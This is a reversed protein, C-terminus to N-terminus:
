ASVATGEVALPLTVTATTGRGPSSALTIEGGHGRALVRAIPLGLGSGDARHLVANAARHSRNFVRPLEEAAIGIGADHIRIEVRPADGEMRVADLRVAQGPRSYRVANDLVALLLQRLRDADGIVPLAAPWPEHDLSVGGARAIAEGSSILDDLITVLDFPVRRLSLADIDSRAMTLLDDIALSLHRSADEIRRLSAQYEEVPKDAGRLSVQAEGRIATTPTRLEHSIDAFLQRRRAEADSQAALAARLESTRVAVQEELASRAASEVRRREALEEAMANMSRGVDAFEDTGTVPIRHSLDGRRLAAAGDALGRLPGRLARTFYAALLLAVLVLAATSGIWSRSLLALAADTDARKERLATDEREISESLLLRLDRGEARDFLDNALRWALAADTGAPVPNLSALGRGLQALSGELVRLADRREAQRQRAAPSDDLLVAQAALGKLEALVLRMRELLADRPADGAAAGFQQQALWTRLQQKDSRLETFGQKIDAAVRGRLVHREVQGVAWLAVIGQVVAISGLLALALLLRRGFVNSPRAPTPTTM